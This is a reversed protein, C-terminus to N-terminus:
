YRFKRAVFYGGLTGIAITVEPSVELGAVDHLAWAALIGIPGAILMNM